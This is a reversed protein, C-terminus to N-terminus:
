VGLNHRVEIGNQEFIAQSPKGKASEIRRFRVKGGAFSDGIHLTRTIDAEPDKVLLSVRDGMEVFGQVQAADALATKSVPAPLEPPAVTLPQNTPADPPAIAAGSGLADPLSSTPVPFDSSALPLQAPNAQLPRVAPRSNATLGNATPSVATPITTSQRAARLPPQSGGGGIVVPFPVPPIQDGRGLRAAIPPQPKLRTLATFPISVEAPGTPAFPNTRGSSARTMGSPESRATTPNDFLSSGRSHSIPAGAPRESQVPEPAHGSAETKGAPTKGVSLAVSLKPSPDRPAPEPLDALAQTAHSPIRAQPSQGCSSLGGTLAGALLGAMLGTQLRHTVGNVLPRNPTVTFGTPACRRVLQTASGAVWRSVLGSM